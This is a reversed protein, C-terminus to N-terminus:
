QQNCGCGPEEDAQEREKSKHEKPGATSTAGPAVYSWGAKFVGENAVWNEELCRQATWRAKPNVQLLNTVVEKPHESKDKWAKGFKYNGHLVKAKDQKSNGGLKFPADGAILIYLIVGMSWCDCLLGDYRAKREIIEPAVYGFTGLGTSTLHEPDDDLFKAFGFDAIQVSSIDAENKLLINEPKLDRHGIGMKHLYAVGTVVKSFCLGAEQETLWRGKIEPCKMLFHMLDGGQMLDQVIQV